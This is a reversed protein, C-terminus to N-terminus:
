GPERNSRDAPRRAPRLQGSDLVQCSSAVLERHRSLGNDRQVNAFTAVVPAHDSSPPQPAREPGPQDFPAARRHGSRGHDCGLPQVLAASVLIHDILEKRGQNIRSYDKGPPMLPGRSVPRMPQSRKSPLAEGFSRPVFMPSRRRREARGRSFGGCQRRTGSGGGQATPVGAQNLEAAIARLTLGRARLRQIRRVVAM